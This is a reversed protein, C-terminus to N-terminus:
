TAIGNRVLRYKIVSPCDVRGNLKKRNMLAEETWHIRENTDWVGVPVPEVAGHELSQGPEDLLKRGGFGVVMGARAPEEAM